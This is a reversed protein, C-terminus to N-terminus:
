KAVYTQRRVTKSHRDIFGTIFAFAQSLECFQKIGTIIVHGSNFILVSAVRGSSVKVKCNVGPYTEPDYSAKVVAPDRAIADRLPGLMLGINVRFNTNVMQVDFDYVVRARGFCQELVNCVDQAIRINAAPQKEGTIHLNGNRFVKINKKSTEDSFWVSIQNYFTRRVKGTRMMRDAPIKVNLPRGMVTPQFAPNEFCAVFADLDIKDDDKSEVVPRTRALITMTSVSPCASKVSELMQSHRGIASMKEMMDMQFAELRQELEPTTSAM